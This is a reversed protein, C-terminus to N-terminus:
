STPKRNENMTDKASLYVVRRAPDLSAIVKANDGIAVDQFNSQIFNYVNTVASRRMRQLGSDRKCIAHFHPSKWASTLLMFTLEVAERMKQVFPSVHGSADSHFQEMLATMLLCNKLNSLACEPSQHDEARLRATIRMTGRNFRTVTLSRPTPSVLRKTDDFLAPEQELIRLILSLDVKEDGAFNVQDQFSVPACVIYSKAMENAPHRRDTVLLTDRVVRHMGTLVQELQLPDKQNRYIFAPTTRLLNVLLPLTEFQIDGEVDVVIGVAWGIPCLHFKPFAKLKLSLNVGATQGLGLIDKKLRLLRQQPNDKFDARLPALGWWPGRYDPAAVRSMYASWFKHARFRTDAQRDYQCRRGLRRLAFSIQPQGDPKSKSEVADPKDQSQQQPGPDSNYYHEPTM